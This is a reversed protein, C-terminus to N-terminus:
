RLSSTSLATVPGFVLKRSTRLGLFLVLMAAPENKSEVPVGRNRSELQADRIRQDREGETELSM